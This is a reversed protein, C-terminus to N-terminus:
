TGLDGRVYSFGKTDWSLELTKKNRKQTEAGHSWEFDLSISLPEEVDSRTLM